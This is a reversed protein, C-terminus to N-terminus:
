YSKPSTPYRYRVLAQLKEQDGLFQTEMQGKHQQLETIAQSKRALEENMSNLFAIHEAKTREAEELQALLQQNELTLKHSKQKAVLVQDKHFAQKDRVQL